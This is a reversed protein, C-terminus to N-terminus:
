NGYHKLVEELTLPMYKYDGDKIDKLVALGRFHHNGQAGKYTEDHSYFAGSVLGTVIKGNNLYKRFFEEIQKHGQVFSFGLKNIMGQVNGGMPRGTFQNPFYHSFWVGELEIATLFPVVEWNSLSPYIEDETFFDAFSPHEALWRDFRYEHNGKLFYLEPKYNTNEEIAEEIAENLTEMADNGADLDSKIRQGEQELATAYKSLAPFDWWDGLMVIIDPLDRKILEGTAVIHSIDVGAKIQTDPILLLNTM